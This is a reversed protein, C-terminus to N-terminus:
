KLSDEDGQRPMNGVDQSTCISYAIVPWLPWGPQWEQGLLSWGESDTNTLHSNGGPKQVQDRSHPKMKKIVFTDWSVCSEPVAKIIAKVKLASSLEKGISFPINTIWAM